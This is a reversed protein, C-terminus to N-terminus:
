SQEAADVDVPWDEDPNSRACVVGDSHVFIRLGEYSSTVSVDPSSDAPVLTELADGSSRWEM